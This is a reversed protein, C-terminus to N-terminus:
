RPLNPELLDMVKLCGKSIMNMGMADGSFCAVRMFANRGAVAVSVSKIKGFNTTSNFAAQIAPWNEEDEM